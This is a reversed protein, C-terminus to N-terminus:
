PQPTPNKCIKQAILDAALKHGDANWHGNGIDQGFGHLFVKNQEAYLLMPPTLDLLEIQEREALTKLRVNPYFLDRAGVYDLFRRRVVPDPAVQIPNSGVVVVFKSGDQKVEDRMKKILAETVNWAERWNEDAPELYIMNDVSLAPKAPAAPQAASAPPATQKRSRWDSLKLKAAMHVYYILQITRLHDRFWESFRNTASTRWRFGQSERFSNDAVLEGNRYIFYPIDDTLKLERLNDSIDNNTTVLLMVIDPSYQRVQREFTILEQGTGYGSVGFNIIEVHKGPFANCAELKQPLLWWFTQEMPVQLAECYSDGLLAIRVTDPSKTKNHERDRLGASNIRVYNKGERQYLGAAGPRLGIGRDYDAVYFLPYSYGIVRLFIETLFVAFLGSILVLLLRKRWLGRRRDTM